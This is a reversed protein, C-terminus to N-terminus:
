TMDATISKTVYTGAGTRFVVGVTSLSILGNLEASLTLTIVENVVEGLTITGSTSTINQM